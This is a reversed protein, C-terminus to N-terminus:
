KGEPLNCVTKYVYNNLDHVYDQAGGSVKELDEMNMKEMKYEGKTKLIVPIM